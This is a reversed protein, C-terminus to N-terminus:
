LCAGGSGQKKKKKLVNCCYDTVWHSINKMDKMVRFGALGTHCEWTQSDIQPTVQNGQIMNEAAKIQEKKPVSFKWSRKM